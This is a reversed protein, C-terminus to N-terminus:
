KIDDGITFTRRVVYEIRDGRQPEQLFKALFKTIKGASIKYDFYGWVHILCTNPPFMVPKRYWQTVGPQIFRPDRDFYLFKETPLLEHAFDPEGLREGSKGLREGSEGALRYKIRCRVNTVHGVAPGENRIRCLIEGVSQDSATHNLTSFEVDFEICPLLARKLVFQVYGGILALIAVAATIVAAIEGMLVVKSTDRSCLVKRLQIRDRVSSILTLVTVAPLVVVPM